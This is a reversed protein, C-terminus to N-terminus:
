PVVSLDVVVNEIVIQDAFQQPTTVTVVIELEAELVWRWEIEGEANEFPQLGRSEINLPAIEFGTAAFFDVGLDSRFLTDLVNSNNASNPGHIDIQARWKNGVTDTRTGCYLNESSLSQSVSVKYTGVGGSTGSLQELIVTNPLIHGNPYGIDMLLQGDALIGRTLASVTLITETISGVCINDSFTTENWELREQHISSMVVFDGNIPEPLRVNSGPATAGLARVVTIPNPNSYAQIFQGLAQFGNAEIQNLVIADPSISM